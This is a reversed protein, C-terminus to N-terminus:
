SKIINFQILINIGEIDDLLEYNKQLDKKENLHLSSNFKDTLDSLKKDL